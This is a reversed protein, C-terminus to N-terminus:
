EFHPQQPVKEFDPPSPEFKSLGPCRFMLRYVAANVSSAAHFYVRHMIKPVRKKQLRLNLYGGINYSSRM